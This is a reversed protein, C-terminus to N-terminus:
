LEREMTLTSIRRLLQRIGVWGVSTENVAVAVEFGMEWRVLLFGELIELTGQGKEFRDAEFGIDEKRRAVM